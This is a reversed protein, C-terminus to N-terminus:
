RIIKPFSKHQTTTATDNNSHRQQQAFAYYYYNNYVSQYYQIHQQLTNLYAAHQQIEDNTTQVYNCQAYIVSVNHGYTKLQKQIIDDNSKIMAQQTELKRENALLEIETADVKARLDLYQQQLSKMELRFTATTETPILNYLPVSYIPEEYVRIQTTQTLEVPQSPATTADDTPESFQAAAALGIVAEYTLAPSPPPQAPLQPSAISEATASSKSRPRRTM